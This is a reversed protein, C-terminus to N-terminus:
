TMENVNRRMTVTEWWYSVDKNLLFSVCYVKEHDTMNIFGMIVQLSSLWEDAGLPDSSVEFEPARM